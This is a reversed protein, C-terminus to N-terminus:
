GWWAAFAQHMLGCGILTTKIVVDACRWFDFPEPRAAITTAYPRQGLIVLPRNRM